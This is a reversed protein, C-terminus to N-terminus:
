ASLDHTKPGDQWAQLARGSRVAGFGPVGDFVLDPTRQLRRALELPNQGDLWDAAQTLWAAATLPRDALKLMSKFHAPRDAGDLKSIDQWDCAALTMGVVGQLLATWVDPRVDKAQRRIPKPAPDLLPLAM